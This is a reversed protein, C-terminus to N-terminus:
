NNPQFLCRNGVTIPDCRIVPSTGDDRKGGVGTWVATFAVRLIANDPRSRFTFTLRPTGRDGNPTPLTYSGCSGGPGICDLVASYTWAEYQCPIGATTGTGRVIVDSEVWFTRDNNLNVLASLSARCSGGPHLAEVFGDVAVIPTGALPPPSPPGCAAATLLAVLALTGWRRRM